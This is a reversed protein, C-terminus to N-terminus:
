SRRCSICCQEHYYALRCMQLNRALSCYKSKDVCNSLAECPPGRCPRMVTPRPQDRCAHGAARETGFWVCRLIRSQFGRTGCTVTCESWDGVRWVGTCRESACERRRRPKTGPDCQATDVDSGNAARCFVDRRQVATRWTFCENCQSWPGSEWRPCDERGCPRVTSPPSLGADECLNADVSRSVNHLTVLCQASRVQHGESGGCAQTCPGWESAVWDFELSEPSGKGLVFSGSTAGPAPPGGLTHQLNSLLQHIHPLPHSAGSSVPSDGSPGQDGVLDGYSWHPLPPPPSPTSPPPYRQVQHYDAHHPFKDGWPDYVQVPEEPEIFEPTPPEQSSSPVDDTLHDISRTTTTANFPTQMLDKIQKIKYKLPVKSPPPSVFSRQPDYPPERVSLQLDAKANGVSCTYTGADSEEVKRIRLVGKRSVKYKRSPAIKHGDKLWLIPISNPSNALHRKRTPCRIKVHAGRFVSATGGVKLYVKDQVKSQVYKQNSELIEPRIERGEGKGAGEHCMKMNCNKKTRPPTKPCSSPSQELTQGHARDKQCKIKRTKFGGGCSKSCKSWPGAVWRSPCDLVNCFQQNRPPPQPCKDNSVIIANAAGRTVEHVCQVLRTQEGGGCTKSCPGFESVNWRPDCPHDNCTHTESDHKQRLDCLTSAVVAQDHDRLCQVISEKIRNYM